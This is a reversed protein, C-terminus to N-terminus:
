PWRTRPHDMNSRSAAAPHHPSDPELVTWTPPHQQRSTILSGKVELVTRDHDPLRHVVGGGRHLHAGPQGSPRLQPVCGSTTLAMQQEPIAHKGCGSTILAMKNPPYDMNHPTAPVQLDHRRHHLRHRPPDGRLEFLHGLLLRLDHRHHARGGQNLCLGLHNPGDHQASTWM